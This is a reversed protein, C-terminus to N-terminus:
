IIKVPIPHTKWTCAQVFLYIQVQFYLVLENFIRRKDKTHDNNEVDSHAELFMADSEIVALSKVLISSFKCVMCAYFAVTCNGNVCLPSPIIFASSTRWERAKVRAGWRGDKDITKRCVIASVGSIPPDDMMKGDITPTEFSSIYRCKLRTQRSRSLTIIIHLHKFNQSYTEINLDLKLDSFAICM